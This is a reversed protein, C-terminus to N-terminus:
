ELLEKGTNMNKKRAGKKWELMRMSKKKAGGANKREVTYDNENGIQKEETENIEKVQNLTM